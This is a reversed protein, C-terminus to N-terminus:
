VKFKKKFRQPKERITLLDARSVACHHLHTQLDPPGTGWCNQQHYDSM